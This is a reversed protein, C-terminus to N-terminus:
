AAHGTTGLVAVASHSWEDEVYIALMLSIIKTLKYLGVLTETHAMNTHIPRGPKVMEEVSTNTEM